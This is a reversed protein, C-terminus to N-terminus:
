KNCRTHALRLLMISDPEGLAKAFHHEITALEAMNTIDKGPGPIQMVEGCWCCRNGFVEVLQARVKKRQRAGMHVNNRKRNKNSSM